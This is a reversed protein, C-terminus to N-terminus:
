AAPTRVVLLDGGAVWSPFADLKPLSPCKLIFTFPLVGTEPGLGGSLSSKGALQPPWSCHKETTGRYCALVLSYCAERLQLFVCLIHPLWDAKNKCAQNQSDGAWVAICSKAGDIILVACFRDIWNNGRKLSAKALFLLTAQLELSTATLLLFSDKNGLFKRRVNPEGSYNDM